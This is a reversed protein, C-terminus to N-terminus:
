ALWSNVIFDWSIGLVGMDWSGVLSDVSVLSRKDVMSLTVNM